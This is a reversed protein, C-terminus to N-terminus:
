KKFFIIMISLYKNSYLNKAAEQDIQAIKVKEQSDSHILSQFNSFSIGLEDKLAKAAKLLNNQELFSLLVKFTDAM